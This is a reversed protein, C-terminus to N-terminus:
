RLAIEPITHPGPPIVILRKDRHGIRMIELGGAEDFWLLVMYHGAEVNSDTTVEPLDCLDELDIRLDLQQGRTVPTPLIALHHFLSAVLVFDSTVTSWLVEPDIEWFAHALRERMKRLDKWLSEDLEILKPYVAANIKDLQKLSEEVNEAYKALAWFLDNDEHLDEDKNLLKSLEIARLCNVKARDLWTKM